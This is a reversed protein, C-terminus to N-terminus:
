KDELIASKALGIAVENVEIGTCKLKQLKAARFISGSGVCPDLIHEGPYFSLGLIDALLEVPKQAAYIKQKVAPYSFVDSASKSLKRNGKQAFLICEYRRGFYGPQPAHGLGPKHWILPTAFPTWGYKRALDALTPWMRIDCFMYLHANPKCLRFGEHLILNAIRAATESDDEYQHGTASTQEGFNDAGMGYPPDTVIGHFTEAQLTPLIDLCSGEILILDSNKQETLAALGGFLEQELKKKAIRVAERRSQAKAVDPDNAFSDLLLADAVEGRQRDETREDGRIEDIAKGTEALTQLPNQEKFMAHLKAIARAEDLPSLNKRRLNESLEIRFLIREDPEKIKVIPVFRPQVMVTGYRYETTISKIAQLRCWGAILNGNLDVSPAHILGNELIDKTLEKIHEDPVERRQREGVFISDVPVVQFTSISSHDHM